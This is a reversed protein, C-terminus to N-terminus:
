VSPCRSGGFVTGRCSLSAGSCRSGVLCLAEDARLSVSLLLQRAFPTGNDARCHCARAAAAVLSPARCPLSVSLCCSSSLCYWTPGAAVRELLPHSEMSAALHPRSSMTGIPGHVDVGTGHRPPPVQCRQPLYVNMMVLGPAVHGHLLAAILLQAAASSAKCRPRHTCRDTRSLCPHWRMHWHDTKNVRISRPRVHM